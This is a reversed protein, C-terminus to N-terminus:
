ETFTKSYFFTGKKIAAGIIPPSLSLQLSNIGIFNPPSQIFFNIAIETINANIVAAANACATLADTSVRQAITLELESVPLPL